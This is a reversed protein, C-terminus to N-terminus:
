GWFCRIRQIAEMWPFVESRENITCGGMERWKEGAWCLQSSLVQKPLYSSRVRLRPFNLNIWPNSLMHECEFFRPFVKELHIHRSKMIFSAFSWAPIFKWVIGIVALQRFFKRTGPQDLLYIVLLNRVKCATANFRPKSTSIITNM